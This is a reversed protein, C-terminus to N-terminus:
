QPLEEISIRATSAITRFIHDAFEEIHSPGKPVIINGNTVDPNEAYWGGQGYVIYFWYTVGRSCTPCTVSASGFIRDGPKVLPSGAPTQFVRIPFSANNPTLVDFNGAPIPLPDPLNDLNFAAIMWKINPAVVDSSNVLQIYAFQTTVFRLSVKPKKEDPLVFLCVISAPILILGVGLGGRRIWRPMDRWEYPAFLATVTVGLALLALVLGIKTAFDM